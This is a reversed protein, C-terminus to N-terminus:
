NQVRGGTVFEKSWNSEELNNINLGLGDSASKKSTAHVFWDNKLYVGVHVIRDNKAYPARFFVLDGMELDDSDIRKCYTNLIGQSGGRVKKHFLEDLMVRAFGSCDIGKKKTRNKWGEKDYGEWNPTGYNTGMWSVMFWYVESDSTKLNQVPDLIHQFHAELALLEKSIEPVQIASSAKNSKVQQPKDKCSLIQLVIFVYVFWKIQSKM